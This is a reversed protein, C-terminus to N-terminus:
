GALNAQRFEIGTEGQGGREGFFFLCPPVGSAVALQPEWSTKARSGGCSSSVNVIPFIVIDVGDEEYRLVLPLVVTEDHQCPSCLRYGRDRRPVIIPAADDDLRALRILSLFPLCGPCAWQGPPSRQTPTRKWAAISRPWFSSSSASWALDESGSSFRNRVKLHQAHSVVAQGVQKTQHPRSDWLSRSELLLEALM